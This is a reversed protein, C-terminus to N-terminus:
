LAEPEGLRRAVAALFLSGRHADGARHDAALSADLLPRPAVTGDVVWPRQTVRGFGVIATQPPHIVPLVREVGREGLSTVTITPDALESARLRGARAREALDRLAAMLEALPLRDADHIAPAVLGAGRLAIATGVHIGPSSVARGDKWLANFDPFERLALAVAKILLAGPLLRREPPLAANARSLWDSAPGMDVTTSLYYHPIERKSRSMAAGIARRMREAASEPAAPAASAAREVDALTLAGEPGTGPLASLDVGLEAARKRAAPSVRARGAPPPGAAAPAPPPAEGTEGPARIFALPTGVPVKSGTEVLVRELVGDWFAEIEIIGKDTEVEAVVDGRRVAEGPKKRWEVLTGAEMDAGLSPM